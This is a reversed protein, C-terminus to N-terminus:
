HIIIKAVKRILNNSLVAIYLGSCFGTVDFVSLESKVLRSTMLNGNLNYLSIKCDLFSEDLPFIMENQNVIVVLQDAINRKFITIEMAGTVGSGDNITAQATVTGSAIATVLGTASITAQGTGNVITWTITQETADGPNIAASLQLTGNDTTIVTAGGAGTVTIGVPVVQVGDWGALRALLWWQAKALRIAGAAGIHGISEDGLNTTNILPFTHGNWTTTTLSGDDDYCLIDAYDFLIRSSNEKAYNRIYEHKLYGQYGREDSHQAPGTTFVVKTEYGNAACYAIYDETAVLYTNMSVRNGTISYDETDLGFCLTGDPGGDTRGYWYCGFVPDIASSQSTGEEMDWCWGFGLVNIPHGLSSYEAILNKIADKAPSQPIPWARWTFWNAEGNSPGFNVRLYQDTYAEGTSVNSAYGPNSAELLEMGVRYAESHSEGPFCVLMKKVEAIYYPPIKDFDVVITHDAIIQGKNILSIQSLIIFLVVRRM